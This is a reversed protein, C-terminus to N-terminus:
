ICDLSVCLGLACVIYLLHEVPQCLSQGFLAIHGFMCHAECDFWSDLERKVCASILLAEM